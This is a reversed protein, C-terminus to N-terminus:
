NIAVTNKPMETESVVTPKTIGARRDALEAEYKARLTAAKTSLTSTVTETAESAKTAQYSVEKSLIVTLDSVASVVNKLNKWM